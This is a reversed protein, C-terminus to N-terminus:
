WDVEDGGGGGGGGRGGGGGGGGRGTEDYIHQMRVGGTSVHLYACVDLITMTCRETLGPVQPSPASVAPGLTSGLHKMEM